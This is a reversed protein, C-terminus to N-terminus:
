RHCTRALQCTAILHMDGIGLFCDPMLLICLRVYSALNIPCIARASQHPTHTHTHPAFTVILRGHMVAIIGGGVQRPKVTSLSVLLAHADRDVTLNGGGSAVEVCPRRSTSVPRNVAHRRDGIIARHTV